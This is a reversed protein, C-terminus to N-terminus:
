QDRPTKDHCVRKFEQRSKDCCDKSHRLMVEKTQGKNQKYLSKSTAVNKGHKKM